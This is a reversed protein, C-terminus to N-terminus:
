GSWDTVTPDAGGSGDDRVAVYRMGDGPAATEGLSYILAHCKQIRVFPIM